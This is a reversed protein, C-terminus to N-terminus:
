KRKWLSIKEDEDISIRTYTIITGNSFLPGLSLETPIPQQQKNTLTANKHFVTFYVPLSYIKRRIYQDPIKTESTHNFLIYNLYLELSYEQNHTLYLTKQYDRKEHDTKKTLSELNIIEDYYIFCDIDKLLQSYESKKICSDLIEELTLNDNFYGRLFLSQIYPHIQYETQNIIRSISYPFPLPTQLSPYTLVQKYNM